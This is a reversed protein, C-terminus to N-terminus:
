ERYGAAGILRVFRVAIMPQEIVRGARREIRVLQQFGEEGVPVVMRGGDALQDVLAAPVSPAAATVMIRDFPAAEPWGISGDGVRFEANALGTESFRREAACSLADLREITFVRKALMALIVTQYGTGTGIELVRHIPSVELAETMLGVIYPQSITQGFGVALAKDCYAQDIEEPPLFRERPVARMVALVREDRIGRALLQRDVMELRDIQSHTVSM